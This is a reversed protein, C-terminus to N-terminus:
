GNRGIAIMSRSDINGDTTFTFLAKFTNRIKLSKFANRTNLNKLYEFFMLMITFTRFFFFSARSVTPARARDYMNTVASITNWTSGDVNPFKKSATYQAVTESVVTPYPSIYGVDSIPFITLMIDVKIPM